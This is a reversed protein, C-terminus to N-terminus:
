YTRALVWSLISFVHFVHQKHALLTVMGDHLLFASGYYSKRYISDTAWDLFVLLNGDQTGYCIDRLENNDHMFSLNTNQRIFCRFTLCIITTHLFVETERM